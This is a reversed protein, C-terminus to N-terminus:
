IIKNYRLYKILDGLSEQVVRDAFYIKNDIFGISLYVGEDIQMFIMAMEEYKKYNALTKDKQYKGERMRIKACIEASFIEYNCSRGNINRNDGNKLLYEKLDKPFSVGIKKEIEEIRM